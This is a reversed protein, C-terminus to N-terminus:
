RDQYPKPGLVMEVHLSRCHLAALVIGASKLDMRMRDHVKKEDAHAVDAAAGGGLAHHAMTQSLVAQGIAYVNIRSARVVVM